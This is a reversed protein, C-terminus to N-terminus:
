GWVQQTLGLLPVCLVSVPKSPLLLPSVALPCCPLLVIGPLRLPKSSRMSLQVPSRLWVVTELLLPFSSNNSLCHHSFTSNLFFHPRDYFTM